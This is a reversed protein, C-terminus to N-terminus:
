FRFFPRDWPIRSLILLLAIGFTILAVKHKAADSAGKKTKSRGITALVAAIVGVSIHEVAYFRMSAEKMVAGMGMERIVPVWNVFYLILGLLLQTHISAMFFLGAKGDTNTYADKQLLGMAARVVAYVGTLLVVWRLFNHLILLFDM